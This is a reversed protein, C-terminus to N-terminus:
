PRGSRQSKCAKQRWQKWVGQIKPSSPHYPHGMSVLVTISTSPLIHSSVGRNKTNTNPYKVESKHTRNRQSHVEPPMNYPCLHSANLKNPTEKTHPNRTTSISKMFLQHSSFFTLIFRKQLLFPLQSMDCM